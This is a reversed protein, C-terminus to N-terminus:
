KQTEKDDLRENKTIYADLCEKCTPYFDSDNIFDEYEMHGYKQGGNYERIITSNGALYEFRKEDTIEM